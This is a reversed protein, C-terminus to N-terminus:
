EDHGGQNADSAPTLPPLNGPLSDERANSPEPPDNGDPAGLQIVVKPVGLARRVEQSAVRLIMEVDLTERIRSSIEALLREKQARAQTTQYARASELAVGLQEALKGTLELDEENWHGGQESRTLKLVGIVVERVKVPVFVIAPDDKDIAVNGAKITERVLADDIERIPIVGASTRSFGQYAQGRTQERWAQRSIEGYVRREAELVQELQQVLRASHIATAVQDALVQLTRVDQDTFAAKETSQVDLVGMLESGVILPLAMESQTQPLDPNNFYVADEGVNLAIRPERHAAVYGVIGQQGVLLRHNRALMNQGGESNAARLVAYEQNQDLLFTGVHYFGFRESVLRTVLPLLEDLNRINATARGVDAAAQLQASRHELDLTREAVRRELGDVLNRIQLTMSNFAQALTGFEDESEVPAARSLDGLAVGKVTETLSNVPQITQRVTIGVLGLLLLSGVLAMGVTINQLIRVSSKLETIQQQVVVGWGDENASYYALWEVGGGDRYILPPTRGERLAVVPAAASFGVLETSGPILEPHAILQDQEDVVYAYGTEGIDVTLVQTSIETLRSAFMCVGVIQGGEGRIPVAAVLAPQGSSRGILSQLAYEDGGVAQQFWQRDSYDTLEQGDSRAINMGSLDTTSVLYMAPYSEAMTELLPTQRLPDMSLIEPQRALNQLATLNGSVINEVTQNLAETQIAIIAGSRDELLDEAQGLLFWSVFVILPITSALILATLRVQVRGAQLGRTIAMQRYAVFVYGISIVAGSILTGLGDPLIGELFIEFLWGIALIIALFRALKHTKPHLERDFFSLYVVLAFLILKTVYLDAQIIVQGIVGHVINELQLYGGAYKGPAPIALYINSGTLQDFATLSIPVLAVIMIIFFLWGMRGRIWQPKLTGITALILAPGIAPIAAALLALAPAGESYTNARIALLTGTSSVASLGTALSVLRNAQRRPNVLFIYFSLTITILTLFGGALQWAFPVMNETM